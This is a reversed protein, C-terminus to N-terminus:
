KLLKDAKKMHKEANRHVSEVEEVSKRFFTDLRVIGEYIRGIKDEDPHTQAEHALARIIKLQDLIAHETKEAESLGEAEAKFAREFTKMHLFISGNAKLLCNALSDSTEIVDEMRHYFGMLPRSDVKAKNLADSVDRILPVYQKAQFAGIEQSLLSNLKVCLGM